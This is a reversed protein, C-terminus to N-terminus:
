FHLTPTSATVSVFAIESAGWEPGGPAGVTPGAQSQHQVYSQLGLGVITRRDVVWKTEVTGGLVTLPFPDQAPFPLSQSLSFAANLVARPATRDTLAATLMVRNSPLGTRIDVTPAFTAVLAYGRHGVTNGVSVSGTPVIVLENLGPTAAVTASAGGSVSLAGTASLRHRYSASLGANPVDSRCEGDTTNSTFLTCLGVSVTDVYSLSLAITDFRSLVTAAGLSVHPASGQPLVSRSTADLGGSMSYGGGVMLSTRRSARWSLSGGADFSGVSLNTQQQLLATTGPTAPQGQMAGQSPMTPQGTTGPQTPTM